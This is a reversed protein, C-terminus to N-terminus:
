AMRPQAGIESAAKSRRRSKKKADQASFSQIWGCGILWAFLAASAPMQLSFDFLAHFAAAAMAALALSAFERNRKRAMVGRILTLAILGLSLYLAAAAPMGLEWLNELYSNHALDWEGNFASTLPVHARFTEQFAGLGHGLLPREWINELIVPFIAFRGNEDSTALFRDVLGTAANFAVFGFVALLTLGLITGSGDKRRRYASWFVLAAIVGAMAGARSQSLAIAGIGVIAGFAFIWASSFFSELFDRLRSRGRGQDAVDMSRTYIAINALVGFVAYTAYSNRNNFTASVVGTDRQLIPNNDTLMAYIGFLAMGTSFIAIAALFRYADDPTECSRIAIWAVMGYMTMRMIHHRTQGPDASIVGSAEVSDWIPHILGTPMGPLTQIIAWLIVGLWLLAPLWFRRSWGSVSRMGDVVIQAGFLLLILMSLLSWSVPRNAGLAVASLLIILLCAWGIFPQAREGLAKVWM